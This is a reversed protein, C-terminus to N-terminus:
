ELATEVLGHQHVKCSKSRGDEDLVITKCSRRTAVGLAQIREKEKEKPNKKVLLIRCPEQQAGREAPKDIRLYHYGTVVRFSLGSRCM